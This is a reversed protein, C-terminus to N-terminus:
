WIYEVLNKLIYIKWLFVCSLAIGTIWIFENNLVEKSVLKNFLNLIIAVYLIYDIISIVLLYEEQWWNKIDKWNLTSSLNPFLKIGKRTM